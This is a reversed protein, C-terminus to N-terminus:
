IKVARTMDGGDGVCCCCSAGCRHFRYGERTSFLSDRRWRGSENHEAHVARACAQETPEIESRSKHARFTVQDPASGLSLLFPNKSRVSTTRCFSSAFAVRANTAVSRKLGSSAVTM